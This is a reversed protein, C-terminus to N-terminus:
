HHRHRLPDPRTCPPASPPAHPCSRATSTTGRVRMCDARSQPPVGRFVAVDVTATTPRRKGAIARAPLGPDLDVDEPGCGPRLLTKAASALVHHHDLLVLVSEATADSRNPIM